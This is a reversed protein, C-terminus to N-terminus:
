KAKMCLVALKDQQADSLPQGNFTVQNGEVSIIGLTAETGAGLQNYPYASTDLNLAQALNVTLPINIKDPMKIQAGGPLDAAAVPKGHVDVGPQYAVSPDPQYQVLSRCLAPDVAPTVALLPGADLLVLVFITTGSLKRKTM